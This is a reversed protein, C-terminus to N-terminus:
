QVWYFTSLAEEGLISQITYLIKAAERRTVPDAAASADVEIGATALAAASDAAWAPMASDTEEAFVTKASATPLQLINQLLVIAEANTLSASPRFVVGSDSSVGTIMGNGLASTIYPQMWAPTEAEDAFGSTMETDGAEAGVLKTVMVLFDGRSVPEEPDFCLNGGVTAGTFLGEEKMWMAQFENPDGAMDAYTAKDTPKLIQISVTAPESTSGAEDTVTYTFSDKGVKNKNPTYTFTGDEHLEVTGRKPEKVLQYTLPKGEPDSANLTGTNAINKYTELSSDAATPAENKAPFITLKLEKAATVTRNSITYYQISAEQQTTCTSDLTLQGLVDKPLADGARIVRSGYRVTAVSPSPVSLIFVGDDEALTTFDEASFCFLATSDVTVEQAAAPAASLLLTSLLTVALFATHKLKKM